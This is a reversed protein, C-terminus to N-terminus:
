NWSVLFVGWFEVFDQWVPSWPPFGQLVMPEEVTSPWGLWLVYVKLLVFMYIRFDTPYMVKIIM